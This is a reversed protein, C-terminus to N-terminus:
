SKDLDLEKRSRVPVWSRRRASERVRNIVHQIYLGQFGDPQFRRNEHVAFLYEGLCALHSRLWGISFKPGPFKAAPPSYRQGTDVRTWGKLGGLPESLAGQSFVSLRHPSMSNFRLAGETGHIEFRLEDETGTALKTAEVTGLATQGGAVAARVLIVVNDEVTVPLLSEPRGPDPRKDFAIQTTALVEHFDGVLANVLDLIHSGLDAIVGGGAEEALKWKLPATPDASGSHLYAARFSLIRGLYGEEVLQRARLTAPFYRNQFTIGLTGTYGSLAQRIREAEQINAVMPKDCYIHKNNSLASELQECHFRNPSTIHVIDIEPNETILRYDTSGNEVGLEECADRATEPHATSLHTIETRFPLPRYFLPLNIHGYAHVRGIFGCGVLGVRYIKM